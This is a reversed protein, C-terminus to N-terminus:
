KSNRSSAGPSSAGPSSRPPWNGHDSILPPPALEFPTQAPSPGPGGLAAGDPPPPPRRSQRDVLKDFAERQPPTLIDRLDARMREHVQRVKPFTEGLIADLDPRHKDMIQWAQDRQLDSLELEGLPIPRGMGELFPPRQDHHAWRYVAAGTVTGAAFVAVLVAGSLLRVRLLARETEGM